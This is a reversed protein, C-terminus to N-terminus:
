AFTIHSKGVLKSEQLKKALGYEDMQRLTDVVSHWTVPLGSQVNGRHWFELVANLPAPQQQFQSLIRRQFGLYIGFEYWRHDVDRLATNIEFM